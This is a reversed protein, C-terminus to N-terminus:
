AEMWEPKMLREIEFLAGTSRDESLGNLAVATGCTAVVPLGSARSVRGLLERGFQLESPTTGGGLNANNILGTPTLRACRSVREIMDLVEEATGSRPRFPNVVHWLEYGSREFQARFRGLAVAGADDGGVDFVAYQPRAFAAMVEAPLAPIDVATLAYEPAILRIGQETLWAQREASRFFPNVIDLDILAVPFKRRIARALNLTIETKGSGYRGVLIKPTEGAWWEM